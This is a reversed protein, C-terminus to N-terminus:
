RGATSAAGTSPSAASRTDRLDHDLAARLEALEQPIACILGIAPPEAM